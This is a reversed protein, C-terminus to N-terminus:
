GRAAFSVRNSKKSSEMFIRIQARAKAAAIDADAAAAASLV